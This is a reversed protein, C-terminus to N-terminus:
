ACFYKNPSIIHYRSNIKFYEIFLNQSVFFILFIFYQYNNFSPSSYKTTMTNKERNEHTQFNEHYFNFKIYLCSNYMLLIFIIFILLPRHWFEKARAIAHNQAIYIDAKDKDLSSIM